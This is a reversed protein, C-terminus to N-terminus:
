KKLFELMKEFGPFSISYCANPEFGINQDLSILTALMEMRHDESHFLSEKMQTAETFVKFGDEKECVKFFGSLLKVTLSIRDSEKNRLWEADKCSFSLGNRAVMYALFPIEDILRAVMDGEVSV